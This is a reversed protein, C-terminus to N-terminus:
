SHVLIMGSVPGVRVAGRLSRGLGHASAAAADALVTWSGAPLRLNATPSADANLLVLLPRAGRSETRMAVFLDGRTPLFSSAEPPALALAPYASRVAILGRYYDVLARNRDRDRYDLHNTADDKNYSNDDLTGSRPDDVLAARILKSRGYEQGEHLMVPGRSAFLTLAALRHVALQDSSLLGNAAPDAVRQGEATIGLAIRIFDGLTYGDHSELYNVSQLSMRFAGGDSRLSGTLCTELASKTEGARYRGFLFGDDRGPHGGKVTNRFRDNWSSWGLDSFAAPDYGGGGWPEAILIARPNIPTLSSSERPAWRRASTPSPRSWRSACATAAPIALASAGSRRGSITIVGFDSRRRLSAADFM